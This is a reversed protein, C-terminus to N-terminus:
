FDPGGDLEGTAPGGPAPSSETVDTLPIVDTGHEHFEGNASILTINLSRISALELSFIAPPVIVFIEDVPFGPSFDLGIPVGLAPGTFHLSASSWLGPRVCRLGRARM